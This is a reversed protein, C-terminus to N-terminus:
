SIRLIWIIFWVGLFVGSFWKFNFIGATFQVEKKLLLEVCFYVLLLSFVAFLVPGFPHHGFAGSFDFQSLSYFSRSIGCTPCDLGTLQHFRCTTINSEAPNIFISYVLIILLGIIWATKNKKQRRSLPKLSILKSIQIM